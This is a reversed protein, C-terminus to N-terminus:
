KLMRLDLTDSSSRVHERSAIQYSSNTSEEALTYFFVQTIDSLILRPYGSSSVLFMQVITRIMDSSKSIYHESARVGAAEDNLAM